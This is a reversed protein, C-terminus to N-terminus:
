SIPNGDADYGCFCPFALANAAESKDFAVVYKSVMKDQMTGDIGDSFRCVAKIIGVDRSYILTVECRKAICGIRGLFGVLSDSFCDFM